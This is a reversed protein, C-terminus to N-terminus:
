KTEEKKYCEHTGDLVKRIEEKEISFGYRELIAVWEIYKRTCSPHYSLDYNYFSEDNYFHNSICCFMKEAQTMSCMSEHKGTNVMEREEEPLSWTEQGTKVRFANSNSITVENKFAYDLLLSLDEPKPGKLNGDIIGREFDKRLKHFRVSLEYLTKKNAAKEKEAPDKEVKIKKKKRYVVIDNYAKYYYLKEDTPKPVTNKNKAAPDLYYREVPSFADSYVKHKMKEPMEEIGADELMKIVEDAKEKRKEDAIESRIKWRLNDSSDASQLIANRKAVSQIEELAMLDSLTLQFGDDESAKKKLIKKDLKAIELRHRVTTRSFGTKEVISQETEGLDLMMQFGEAQEIPTLDSRQMNEELMIGVQERESLGEVIKAPVERLGAATAAAYRRHGILLMYRGNDSPIVTLNQMIGNKRVSETLEEIDGIEKRPNKPHPIIDEVKLMTLEERM